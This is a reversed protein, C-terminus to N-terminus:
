FNFYINKKILRKMAINFIEEVKRYFLNPDVGFYNQANKRM